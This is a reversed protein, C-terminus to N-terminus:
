QIAVAQQGLNQLSYTIRPFGTSPTLSSNANVSLLAPNAGSIAFTVTLTGATANQHNGFKTVTNGSFVGGKNSVGYTASGCEYQVDTGDEVEVCYDVRGGVSTNSGATVNAITIASNNTLVKTAGVVLRDLATQQTTGSAAILGGAQLHIRGPVGQSTGLSGRITTTVGATNTTGGVVNQVSLTQAVPSAADAAGFTLHAAANRRLTLDRSGVTAGWNLPLAIDINSGSFQIRAAAGTAVLVNGGNLYFGSTTNGNFTISPAAASGDPVVVIGASVNIARNNTGGSASVELGINTSSTGTSTNTIEAGYTTQTSTANAGSTAVILAHKSNSAAATGTAAIRVVNGSSVSSSSIEAGNGTTLSNATVQLGATAGTGTTVATTFNADAATLRGTTTPSASMMVNGTGTIVYEGVVGSNNYLVRTNTGSTITTTGITIGGGGGSGLAVNAGNIRAYLENTATNYWLDANSPASPNGAVSGVNIGATTAGPSFTIRGTFTQADGLNAVPSGAASAENRLYLRGDGAAFDKYYLQTTDTPSTSPETSLTFALVGAGSTGVAGASTGIILNGAGTTANALRITNTGTRVLRTDSGSSEASGTSFTLAIGNSLRIGESPFAFQVTGVYSYTWSQATRYFGVSGGDSAFRLGVNSASGNSFIVNGNGKPTLRISVDADDGTASITPTGGAAANAITLENVASATATIGLVENGNTDLISTTIRPSTARLNGSGATVNTGDSTFGSIGGFSGAQNVQVQTNLGGPTGGGGGGGGTSITCVKQVCTLTGNSVKIITPSQVKPDGDVEQLIFPVGGQAFASVALFGLFLVSLFAKKM